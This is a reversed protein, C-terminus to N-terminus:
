DKTKLCYEYARLVDANPTLDKNKCDKWIKAAREFTTIKRQAEFLESEKRVQPVNMGQKLETMIGSFNVTMLPEGRRTADTQFEEPVSSAPIYNIHNDM